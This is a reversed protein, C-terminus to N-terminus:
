SQQLGLEKELRAITKNTFVVGREALSLARQENDWSKGSSKAHERADDRIKTLERVKADRAQKEALLAGRKRMMM